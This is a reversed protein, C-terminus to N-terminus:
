QLHSPILSNIKRELDSLYPSLNAPHFFFVTDTSYGLFNQKGSHPTTSIKIINTSQTTIESPTDDSSSPAQTLNIPLKNSVDFNTGSITARNALFLDELANLENSSDRAEGETVPIKKLEAIKSEINRELLDSPDYSINSSSSENSKKISEVYKAATILHFASSEKNQKHEIKYSLQDETLRDKYSELNDLKDTIATLYNNINDPNIYFFEDNNSNISLGLYNGEGSSSSGNNFKFQIQNKFFNLGSVDRDPTIRKYFTKKSTNVVDINTVVSVFCVYPTNSGRKNFSRGVEPPSMTLPLKGWFDFDDSRKNKVTIDASYLDRLLEKENASALLVDDSPDVFDDNLSESIESDLTTLIEDLRSLALDIRNLAPERNELDVTFQTLDDDNCSRVFRGPNEIDNVINRKSLMAKLDNLYWIAKQVEQYSSIKNQGYRGLAIGSFGTDLSGLSTDLSLTADLRSQVRGQNTQSSSNSIDGVLGSLGDQTSNFIIQNLNDPNILSIDVSQSGTSQNIGTIQGIGDQISFSGLGDGKLIDQSLGFLGSNNNSILKNFVSKSLSNAFSSIDDSNVIYDIDSTVAKSVSDGIVSGPTTIQGAEDKTSLFGKGAIAESKAAEQKLAAERRVIEDVAITKGFYNNQPQWSELYSNWTFPRKEEPAKVSAQNGTYRSEILADFYSSGLVGSQRAKLLGQNQGSIYNQNLYSEWNTVFKPQGGATNTVIQSVVGDLLKRKLSETNLKFIFQDISELLSGKTALSTLGTPEVIRPNTELVPVAAHASNFSM